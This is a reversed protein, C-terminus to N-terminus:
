GTGSNGRPFNRDPRKRSFQKRDEATRPDVITPGNHVHIISGKKEDVIVTAPVRLHEALVVDPHLSDTHEKNVWLFTENLPIVILFHASGIPNVIKFERAPPADSGPEQVVLDAELMDTGTGIALLMCSHTWDDYNEALPQWTINAQEEEFVDGPFKEDRAQEIIRM